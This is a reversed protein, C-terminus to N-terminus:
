GKKFVLDLRQAADECADSLATLLGRTLREGVLRTEWTLFIGAPFVVSRDLTIRFEEKWKDSLVYAILGGSTVGKQPKAFTALFANRADTSPLNAHVYVRLYSLLLDPLPIREYFKAVCDVILEQDANSVANQFGIELREASVRFTGSGNFLSFSLDYNFAEDGKRLIVQGPRLGNSAFTDLASKAIESWRSDQFLVPHKYASEVTVNFNQTALETM